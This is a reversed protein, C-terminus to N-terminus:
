DSQSLNKPPDPPPNHGTQPIVRWWIRWPKYPPPQSHHPVIVIHGSMIKHNTVGGDHVASTGGNAVPIYRDCVADDGLDGLGDGSPAGLFDISVAQCHGGAEHIDMGM